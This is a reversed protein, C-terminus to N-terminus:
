EAIRSHKFWNENKRLKLYLIDNGELRYDYIDAYFKFSKESIQYEVTAREEWKNYLSDWEYLTAKFDSTFVFKAKSDEREWTGVIPNIDQGWTEEEDDDGGCAVFGLPLAMIMLLCLLKRMYNLNTDAM